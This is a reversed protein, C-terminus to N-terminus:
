ALSYTASVNHSTYRSSGHIDIKRRSYHTGSYGVCQISGGNVTDKLLM